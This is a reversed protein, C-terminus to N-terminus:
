SFNFKLYRKSLIAEETSNIRGSERGVAHRIGLVLEYMFQYSSDREEVPTGISPKVKGQSLKEIASSISEMWSVM